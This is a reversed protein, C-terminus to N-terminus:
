LLSNIFYEQITDSSDTSAQLAVVPACLCVKPVVGGCGTAGSASRKMRRLVFHLDVKRSFRGAGRDSV